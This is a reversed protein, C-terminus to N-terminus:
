VSAAATGCKEMASSGTQWTLSIFAVTFTSMNVFHIELGCYVTSHLFFYKIIFRPM